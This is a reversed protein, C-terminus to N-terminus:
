LIQGRRQARQVKCRRADQAAQDLLLIFVGGEGCRSRTSRSRVDMLWFFIKRLERRSTMEALISASNVRCRLTSTINFTGSLSGWCCWAMFLLASRLSIKLSCDLSSRPARAIRFLSSANFALSSLMKCDLRSQILRSSSSCVVNRFLIASSWRFVHIWINNFSSDFLCSFMLAVTNTGPSLLPLLVDVDVGFLPELLGLVDVDVGADVVVVGGGVGWCSLAMTSSQAM